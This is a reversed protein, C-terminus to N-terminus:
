RRSEPIISGSSDRVILQPTLMVHVEGATQGSLMKILMACTQRGIEYLPQRVTTLTPSTYAALPIDDFGAVAIDLGVSLGKQRLRNMVGIAM